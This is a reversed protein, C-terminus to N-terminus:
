FDLNYFLGKSDPDLEPFIQVVSKKVESDLLLDDIQERLPQHCIKLNAVVLTLIHQNEIQQCDSQKKKEIKLFTRYRWLM